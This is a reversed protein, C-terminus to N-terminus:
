GGCGSGRSKLKNKGRKGKGIIMKGSNLDKGESYSWM